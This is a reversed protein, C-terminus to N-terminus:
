VFRVISAVGPVVGLLLGANELICFCQLTTGLPEGGRALGRGLEQVRLISELYALLQPHSMALHGAILERVVRLSNESVVPM